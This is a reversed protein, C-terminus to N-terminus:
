GGIQITQDRRPGVSILSIKVGLMGEIASLYDRAEKPLESHEKVKGIEKMWGPFEIYVPEVKSWDSIWPQFECPEGNIRYETCVKIKPLDSLVDLKTIVLSNIGNVELAYKIAVLDLWGCRRPRGTTAGYERGKMRLHEGTEEKLETLFPGEGVRTTYAKMVGMIQSIKNSPIGTGVSIGGVTTHSSTVYPYTGFGIDLLTGQAGEFLIPESNAMAKNLIYRTDALYPQIREFLSLYEDMIEDAKFRGKLINEKQLLNLELKEAFIKEDLLDAMRIGCRGVKDTYAPGIGRMTTGIKQSEEIAGDIFIHYPMILHCGLSIYLNPTIGKEELLAIEKLLEKPNVVVGESIVGIKKPHLVGSPLLHFVFEFGDVDVTHGANNGGQYRVIYNYDKALLDVIKGKGEGGWQLGIIALNMM